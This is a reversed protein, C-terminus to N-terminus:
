GASMDGLAGRLVQLIEEDPIDRAVDRTIRLTGRGSSLGPHRRLIALDEEGGWGYLSVGHKWAGVNLSRGARRYAPMKYSVGVEVDPFEGLILGHIRDFLPRTAPDIDDIYAKAAEDVPGPECM